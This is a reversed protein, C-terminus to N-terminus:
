DNVKTQALTLHWGHHSLHKVKRSSRQCMWAHWTLSCWSGPRWVTPTASPLSRRRWTLIGWSGSWSFSLCSLNKCSLKRQQFKQVVWDQCSCTVSDTTVQPVEINDTPRITAEKNSRPDFEFAATLVMALGPILRTVTFNRESSQCISALSTTSLTCLCSEEAGNNSKVRQKLTMAWMM